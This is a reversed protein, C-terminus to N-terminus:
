HDPQENRATCRCWSGQIRTYASPIFRLKKQGALTAWSTLSISLAQHERLLVAGHFTKKND